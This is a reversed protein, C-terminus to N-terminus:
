RSRGRRYRKAPAAPDTPRGTAESGDFCGWLVERRQGSDGMSPLLAPEKASLPLAKKCQLPSLTSSSRHGGGARKGGFEVVMARAVLGAFVRAPGKPQQFM